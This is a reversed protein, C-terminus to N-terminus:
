TICVLGGQDLYTLQPLPFSLCVFTPNTNLHSANGISIKKPYKRYNNGTGDCFLQQNHPLTHLPGRPGFKTDLSPPDRALGPVSAHEPDPLTLGQEKKSPLKCRSGQGSGVAQPQPM